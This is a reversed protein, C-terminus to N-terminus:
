VSIQIRSISWVGAGDVEWMCCRSKTNTDLSKGKFPCGVNQYINNVQIQMAPSCAGFEHDWPGLCWRKPVAFNQNFISKSSHSAMGLQIALQM